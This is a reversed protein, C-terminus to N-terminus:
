VEALLRRAVVRYAPRYLRMFPITHHVVPFDEDDMSKFFAAFRQGDFPIQGKLCLRATESGFDRLQGRSGSFAGATNLFAGLLKEPDKGARTYPRLHVRVIEGDPSILDFLPEDPGLGMDALERELWRRAWAEDGAAHESGLAAQLLLKYVDQVQMGPYRGAHEILIREVGAAVM